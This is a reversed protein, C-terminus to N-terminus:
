SLTLKTLSLMFFTLTPDVTYFGSGPLYGCAPCAIAPYCIRGIESGTIFADFAKMLEGATDESQLQLLELAIADRDTIVIDAVGDKDYLTLRAVFPTYIQYYSFMVAREVATPNDVFVSSLLEGNYKRGFDLHEALSPVRLTFGYNGYRVEHGDIGLNTQYAVLLEPTVDTVRSM